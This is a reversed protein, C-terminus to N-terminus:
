GSEGIFTRMCKMRSCALFGDADSTSRTPSSGDLGSNSRWILVCAHVGTRRSVHLGPVSIRLATARM